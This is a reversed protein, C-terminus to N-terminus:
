RTIYYTVVAVAMLFFAFKREHRRQAVGLMIAQVLIMGALLLGKVTARDGSDDVIDGPQISPDMDSMWDYKGGQIAILLLLLYGYAAYLGYRILNLILRIM